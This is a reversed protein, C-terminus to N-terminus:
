KAASSAEKLHLIYGWEDEYLLPFREKLQQFLEDKECRILYTAGYSIKEELSVLSAFGHRKTQFLFNTDDGYTDAIVVAERPLLKDATAAIKVQDFRNVNFKGQNDRWAFHWSLVTIGLVPLLSLFLYFRKYAHKPQGYIKKVKVKAVVGQYCRQQWWLIGRALLICVFPLALYQYYDHRVNGTAFVSLYAFIGGGWFLLWWEFRNISRHVLFLWRLLLFLVCPLLLYPFYVKIIAMESQFPAFFTALFEIKDALKAVVMLLLLLLTVGSFLCDIGKLRLSKLSLKEPLCGPLLLLVGGYGLWYRWLYVVFLWYWWAPRFRIGDGNLLWKTNPIGTPFFLIYRQWLCAPLISLFTLLYLHWSFFMKWSYKQWAMLLFLPLTFISTPKILLATAFAFLTAFYLRHTQKELYFDFLLISGLIATLQFPEPLIARGYYIGYPLLAMVLAALLGLTQNQSRRCVLAYLLAVALTSALASFIRSATTLDLNAFPRFITALTYNVLPFEVMRYGALNYLGSQTNGLDHYHPLWIPYNNEIFERTVSATDAQRFSHADMLPYNVRYLRGLFALLLILCLLSHKKALSFM